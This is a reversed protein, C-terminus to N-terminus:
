RWAVSNYDWMCRDCLTVSPYKGTMELVQTSYADAETIDVDSGCKECKECAELRLSREYADHTCDKDTENEQNKLYNELLYRYFGDSVNYTDDESFKIGDINTLLIENDVSITYKRGIESIDYECEIKLNVLELADEIIKKTSAWVINGTVTKVVSIDSHSSLRILNVITPDSKEMYTIVGYGDLDNIGKIDEDALLNFIEESDVKIKRDRQKASQWANYVVGNHMGYMTDWPRKIVFPHAEEITGSGCTKWRAHQMCIDSDATSHLLNDSATAWHGLKKSVRLRNHPHRNGGYSVSGAAHGGREDIGIGLAWTLYIKTELDLNKGVFGSIGCINCWVM